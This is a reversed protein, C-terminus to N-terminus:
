GNSNTPWTAKGGAPQNPDPKYGQTSYFYSYLDPGYNARRTDEVNFPGEARQNMASLTSPKPIGQLPVDVRLHDPIQNVALDQIKNLVQRGVINYPNQGAFNLPWNPFSALPNPAQQVDFTVRPSQARTLPDYM